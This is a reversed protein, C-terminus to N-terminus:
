TRVVAHRARRVFPAGDSSYAASRDAELLSSSSIRWSFGSADFFCLVVDHCWASCTSPSRGCDNTSERSRKPVTLDASHCRQREQASCEVATGHVARPGVIIFASSPMMGQLNRLWPRGYSGCAVLNCVTVCTHPSIRYTSHTCHRQCTRAGKTEFVVHSGLLWSARLSFNLVNFCMPVGMRTGQHPEFNLLIEVRSRLMDVGNPATTFTSSTAFVFRRSSSRFSRSIHLALSVALGLCTFGFIGQSLWLQLALSPRCGDCQTWSTTRVRITADCM